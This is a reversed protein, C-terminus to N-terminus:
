FPFDDDYSVPEPRPEGLQIIEKAYGPWTNDEVCESYLKLLPWLKDEQQEIKAQDAEIVNGDYPSSDEWCLWFFRDHRKGTVAAAGRQYWFAQRNYGYRWISQEFKYKSADVTKKLDVLACPPDKPIWDIEAKCWFGFDPDRWLFVRKPWGARLLDAADPHQRAKEAMIPIESIKKKPLILRGREEQAGRWAKYIKKNKNMPLDAVVRQDFTEPELVYWDFGTGIKMADTPPKGGNVANDMYTKLHLPSRYLEPLASSNLARIRRYEENAM